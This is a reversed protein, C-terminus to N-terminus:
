NRRWKEYFVLEIVYIPVSGFDSFFLVSVSGFLNNWLERNNRIGM